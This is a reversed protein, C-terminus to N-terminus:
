EKIITRIINNTDSQLRVFYSGSPLNNLDVKFQNEGQIATVAKTVVTRGTVDTVTITMEENATASYQVTLRDQVPVPYLAVSNNGGKRKVIVIRSNESNGDFDVQLLRYYSVTAPTEDVFNYNSVNVITGNGEVQGITEFDVGNTSRQVDFYANNEETATEWALVNTKGEEQATFTTMEVPLANQDTNFALALPSGFMPGGSGNDRYNIGKDGAANEIGILADGYLTSSNNSDGVDDATSLLDNYQIKVLGDPYLIIQFSITEAQDNYDIVELWTVVFHTADGGYYIKGNTGDDLDAYCGAIFSEPGDTSPITFAATGGTYATGFALLGNTSIFANSTRYISGYFTFDFGIDPITFYGDDDSGSWSTIETHAAGVPDIWGYTPQTMLGNGAALSNAFYYGGSNMQNPDTGDAGGGFNPNAQTTFEYTNCTASTTGNANYAKVSVYYQTAYSLGSAAYSTSSGNDHANLIDTGGATTGISVMYGTAGTYSSWSITPALIASTSGNTPSTPTICGDKTMFTTESCGAADGNGNYAILNVYYTTNYNFDAPPNYSTVNGLDDDNLIDTGGTTTGISLRYGTADINAAWSLNTTIDADTSADAPTALESCNPNIPIAEWIVDDLNVYSYTSSLVRRVAIYTDAGAYGSFDVTYEAYTTNLDVSELSTFTSGDTPDTITGVEIDQTSTSNRAYFRLRHTGANLNSLVPSVIIVNGSNSSFNYMSLSNSGSNATTARVDAYASASAGGDILETWCDPVAAVATADFDESFDTAAICLTTFYHPGVWESTDGVGCVARVYFEYDTNDTLGTINESTSSAVVGFTIPTGTGAAQVKLDWATASGTETWGLTASTTTITGSTLSEPKPCSPIEEVVFVGAHFDYDPSDDSSGDSAWVAFQVTGSQATLDAIYETGSESPQNGANWTTLTSWTAGNDTSMLLKVEDDTGTMGGGADAVTTTGSGSYDTVAVEVLLQYPGGVSLDYQPSLLWERDVAQYLNIANSNVTAGLSNQYARNGRWDSSTGSPGDAVEGSGAESWCTTPVNSTMDTSSPFTAIAACPTTFSYFGVWTSEGNGGGCNARYHVYYTTEPTLGTMSYAPTTTPSASGDEAGTGPIFNAGATWELDWDTETGGLTWTLDATTGTISSTAMGSPAPCLVTTTFSYPGIWDSTGSGGCDAQYYVYYTTTASLGTMSYAPTTTPSASADEAGTGPTFDAGAKWELNWATEADGLTWALDATTGAIPSAAMASPNPCAPAEEVSIDDIAQDGYYNTGTGPEARFRIKVLSGSYVHSTLDYGYEEWSASGTNITAVSNWTSGDWSEVYLENNVGTACMFHYFKLYPTTLASVDVIPMEIVVADDAPSTSHDMAIFSGANGTHDSPTAGCGGTNWSFTVGYTWPGGSTASQTWCSSISADFSETYPATENACATTFTHPGEWASLTGGGCDTQVYLDYTTQASLSTVSATTVGGVSGSTVINNGQGDGTPVIEWNYGTAGAAADWTATATTATVSTTALNTPDPCAPIEKVEINDIYLRMDTNTVTSEGYFGIKVTGSYASLDIVIHDGTPSIADGQVWQQLTNASTWTAGDDTSIVVIVKDDAGLATQATGTWPTLALDFELQYNTGGAGLNISPSIFWEYRGTSYINMYASVDSGTNGFNGNTWNSSTSTFTTPAALQGKAETWNTAPYSAFAEVFPPTLTPDAETTFEYTNCAASTLGNANEAKISVYYQTSYSLSSAAYSTSTGNDHANLIDTGGATTGISVIYKVVGADYSSWSITQNLSATSSGNSPTYPTICGDKTTFSTETCGSASGNGNYPKVTAYYTTNYTLDSPLDYTTVNGADYDNLIDTGGTTTGLDIKYSTPNGTAATWTLDTTANINTAAASPSSLVTCNPPSAPTLGDLIVNARSSSSTGTPLSGTPDPNNSDSRYYLGRGTSTTYRWYSNSGYSAENEDVGIVLNDTNNYAFPTTLTITMWNGSSPFTVTGSFVQTMGAATVWDTTSAFSTKSTHGLYITWDTSNTSSGSSFYFNIATINGTGDIESQLYIQESYSYGYYSNIPMNTQTSTGTGVQIQGFASLGVGSVLIFLLLLRLLKM